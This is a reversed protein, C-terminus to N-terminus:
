IIPNGTAIGAINEGDGAATFNGSRSGKIMLARCTIRKGYRNSVPISPCAGTLNGNMNGIHIFGWCKVICATRYSFICSRPTVDPLYNLSGVGLFIPDSIGDGAAIIGIIKLYIAARSLDTNFPTGAKVMLFRLSVGKGYGSRIITGSCQWGIGGDGDGNGIHILGWRKVICATLYSLIGVLPTM